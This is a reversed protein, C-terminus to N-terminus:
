SATRAVALRRQLEVEAAVEFRRLVAPQERREVWWACESSRSGSTSRCCCYSPGSQSRRFVAACLGSSWRTSRYRRGFVLAL